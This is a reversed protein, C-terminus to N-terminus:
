RWDHVTRIAEAIPTPVEEQLFHGAQTEWVKAQPLAERHRRLGRGLIPDRVGWVLAAPGKWSEVWGGIRDMTATTPHSEGNPVMRALALPAARQHIKRLPWRYAKRELRGISARDGQVRHLINQPFGLGRFVVDSVVPAHSFRHFAKTKIPRRPRIVGTNAFVVGHVRDQCQEAVGAAVPGGWDQGVFIADQLDLARVLQSMVLIHGKLSHERTRLPKHSLGLGLLDPAVCRFGELRAIVKRWLFSWTPNGHMLFVPRGEGHDIFHIQGRDTHAMRRKFPLHPKLWRPLEPADDFHIDM